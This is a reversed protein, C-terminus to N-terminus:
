EQVQYLELDAPARPVTSMIPDPKILFALLAASMTDTFCNKIKKISIGRIFFTNSYSHASEFKFSYWHHHSTEKADIM